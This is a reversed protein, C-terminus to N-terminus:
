PNLLDLVRRSPPFHHGADFGAPLNLPGGFLVVMEAERGHLVLEKGEVGCVGVEDKWSESM